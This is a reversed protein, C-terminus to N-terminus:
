MNTVYVCVRVCLSLSLSVCVCLRVKAHLYEVAFAIASHVGQGSFPFFLEVSYILDYSQTLGVLM